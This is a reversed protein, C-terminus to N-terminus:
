AGGGGGGSGGGRGTPAGGAGVTVVDGAVAGPDVAVPGAVVLVAVGASDAAAMAAADVAPSLEAMTFGRMSLTPTRTTREPLSSKLVSSRKPLCICTLWLSVMTTITELRLDTSTVM